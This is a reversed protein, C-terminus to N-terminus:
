LVNAKSTKRALETELSQRSEPGAEYAMERAAILIANEFRQYDPPSTGLNGDIAVLTRWSVVDRIPENKGIGFARVLIKISRRAEQAKKENLKQEDSRDCNSVGSSPKKDYPFVLEPNDDWESVHRLTNTAARLLSTLHVPDGQPAPSGYLPGYGNTFTPLKKLVGRCFRRLTDDAWLILISSQQDAFLDEAQAEAWLEDRRESEQGVSAPDVDAFSDGAIGSFPFGYSRRAGLFREEQQLETCRADAAFAARHAEQMGLRSRRLVAGFLRYPDTDGLNLFRSM